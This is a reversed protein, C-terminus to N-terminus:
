QIGITLDYSANGRNGGVIVQYDGTHPLLITENNASFALIYGSPSIVDFAANNELAVISLTMQQGGQAGLVYIDRDGRVISNSVIADSRGPAFEVRQTNVHNAASLLDIAELGNHDQFAPDVLKCDTLNLIHDKTQLTSDTLTWTERTAQVDYEIWTTIDVATQNETLQGAFVQAYSTFYGAEENQVSSRADGQLQNNDNLTLRLYTSLIGNNLLYCYRGPLLEFTTKELAPSTSTLESEIPPLAELPASAGQTDINKIRCGAIAGILVPVLSYGIAPNFRVM